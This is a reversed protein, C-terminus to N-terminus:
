HSMLVLNNLRLMWQYPNPLARSNEHKLMMTVTYITFVSVTSIVLIFYFMALLYDARAVDNM